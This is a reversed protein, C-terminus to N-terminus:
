SSAGGKRAMTHGGQPAWGHAVGVARNPPPRSSPRKRATNTTTRTHEITAGSPTVNGVALFRSRSGNAGPAASQHGDAGVDNTLVIVTPM